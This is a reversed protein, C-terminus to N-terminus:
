IGFRAVGFEPSYNGAANVALSGGSQQNVGCRVIDGQALQYVTAVALITIIGGGTAAQQIPAAIPTTGNLELYLERFGVANAAFQVTAFILYIGGLGTPITIRDPNVANDHFGHTDFRESNFTLITPVSDPTSQNANNYVRCGVATQAGGGLTAWTSWAAGNSQYVIGNDTSSYLTGAPVANAAPRAALTGTLLHGAFNNNAM